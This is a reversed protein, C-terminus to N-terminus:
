KEGSTLWIDLYEAAFDDFVLRRELGKESRRRRGRLSRAPTLVLNIPAGAMRLM